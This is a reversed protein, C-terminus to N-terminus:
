FKFYKQFVFVEKCENSIYTFYQGSFLFLFVVHTKANWLKLMSYCNQLMRNLSSCKVLGLGKMEKKKLYSPSVRTYHQIM